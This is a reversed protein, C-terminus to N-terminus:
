QELAQLLSTEAADLRVQPDDPRSAIAVDRASAEAARDTAAAAAAAYSQGAVVESWRGGDIASKQGALGQHAAALSQARPSSAAFRRLSAALAQREEAAMPAQLTDAILDVTGPDAAALMGARAKKALDPDLSWAALRLLEVPAREGEGIGLELMAARQQANAAAFLREVEERDESDPSQIKERLSRDGKVVPPAQISRKAIGDRLTDFVSQTDWTYFVDYVEKGDLEVMIHRPSIRKGDLFKEYVIPEIAMHEGCTVGGLRPCPIRRGQDDYDRPNHRYVSAMVCVYPEWLKALEPDRYRVGAYHESAIEGDMNVCVLIPKKTQQSLRVADDWTRQWRIAVPKAWDAATPAYWMQEPVLGPPAPVGEQAFASSLFPVVASLSLLRLM